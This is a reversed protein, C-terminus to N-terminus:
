SKFELLYWATCTHRYWGDFLRGAHRIIDQPKKDWVGNWVLRASEYYYHGESIVTGQFSSMFDLIDEKNIMIEDGNLSIDRQDHIASKALPPYASAVLITGNKICDRPKM